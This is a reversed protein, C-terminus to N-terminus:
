HAPCESFIPGFEFLSFSCILKSGLNLRIVDVLGAYGMKIQEIRIQYDKRTPENYPFPSLFLSAADAREDLLPNDWYSDACAQIEVEATNLPM